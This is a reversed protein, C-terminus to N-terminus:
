STLTLTPATQTVAAPDTATVAAPNSATTSSSDSIAAPVGSATNYFNSDLCDSAPTLDDTQATWTAGANSQVTVYGMSANAADTAPLAAIATAEDAYVQDAGPSKTSITGAATIQVLWVGWFSGAAAATNITDAATFATGATVAAKAAPVGDIQFQFATSAINEATSGVSLTTANIIADSTLFTRLDNCFAKLNDLFTANVGTDTVLKVIEARGAAYDAIDKVIEARGATYDVIGATISTVLSTLDTLSAAVLRRINFGDNKDSIANTRNAISEAM